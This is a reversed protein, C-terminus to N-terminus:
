PVQGRSSAPGVGHSPTPFNYTNEHSKPCVARVRYALVFRSTYVIIWPLMSASNNFRDYDTEISASNNSRGHFAKTVLVSQFPVPRLSATGKLM